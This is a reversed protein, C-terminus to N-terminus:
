AIVTLGDAFGPESAPDLALENAKEPLQDLPLRPAKVVSWHTPSCPKALCAAVAALLGLAVILVDSVSVTFRAERKRDAERAAGSPTAGGSM